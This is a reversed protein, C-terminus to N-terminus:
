LCQFPFGVVCVFLFRVCECEIGKVGDFVYLLPVSASVRAKLGILSQKDKESKNPVKVFVTRYSVKKKTLVKLTFSSFFM